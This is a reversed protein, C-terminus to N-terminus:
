ICPGDIKRTSYSVVKANFKDLADQIMAGTDHDWINHFRWTIEKAFWEPDSGHEPDKWQFLDVADRTHKVLWQTREFRVASYVQLAHKLLEIRYSGSAHGAMTVEHAAALVRVLVLSDEIGFGAGAGLHPGAAHAADGAMCIVGQSYSTAPNDLMDFIAWKDLSEPLLDVMARMSSHWGEFAKIAEEKNGMDTHRGDRTEWANPDSIVFLM